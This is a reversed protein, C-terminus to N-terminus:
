HWLYVNWIQFTTNKDNYRYTCTISNPDQRTKTKKVFPYEFWDWCNCLSALFTSNRM